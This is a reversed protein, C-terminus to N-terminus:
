CGLSPIYVKLTMVMVHLCWSVGFHLMSFIILLTLSYLVIDKYALEMLMVLKLYKLNNLLFYVSKMYNDPMVYRM